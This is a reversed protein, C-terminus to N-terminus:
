PRPSNTGTVQICQGTIHLSVDSVLYAVLNGIEEPRISKGASSMNKGREQWEAPFKEYFNTFVFAPAVCNVRIGSDILEQALGKTFAIVGAKVAGYITGTPVGTVGGESSMSVIDGRKQKIMYPVVARTCNLVGNLNLAIDKQWKEPYTEAFLQPPTSGGANNVLIDIRGFEAVAKKMMEDVEAPDTVNAKLTLAKRGLARIDKATIELGAADIDAVVIDCGERALTLAIGRGIGRQSGAGTVLAVRGSLGLEM